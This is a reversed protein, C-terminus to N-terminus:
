AQRGSKLLATLKRAVDTAGLAVSFRGYVM